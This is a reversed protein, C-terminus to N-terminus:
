FPFFPLPCPISPLPSPPPTALPVSMTEKGQGGAEGGNVSQTSTTQRKDRLGMFDFTKETNLSATWCTGGFLFMQALLVM